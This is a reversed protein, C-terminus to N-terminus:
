DVPSGTNPSRLLGSVSKGDYLIVQTVYANVHKEGLPLGGCGKTNVAKM